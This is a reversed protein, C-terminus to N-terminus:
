KKLSIELDDDDKKTTSISMDSVKGIEIIKLYM